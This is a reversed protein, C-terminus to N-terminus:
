GDDDTARIRWRAQAREGPALVMLGTDFPYKRDNFADPACTMPEVALGIRHGVDDKAAPRDATCIQVWRCGSGWRIETGTNSATDAVTVSVEGQPDPSLGTFAHDLRVDGIVRESRFDFRAADVDLPRLETPILRDEDVLLVHSAPLTLKWGSLEGPGARLYPHFGVGFPADENSENLATVSQSLGEESLEFMVTVRVRWPYSVQPEVTAELSVWHPGRAALSFNQWALLGHIAHGRAPETLAAQLERAGFRYRGDAIRNPWPALVAGRSAPRMEDEAFPVVIDRERYTLIRLSAGVSAIVARYNGCTLEYQSGSVPTVDTM